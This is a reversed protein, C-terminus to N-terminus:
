THEASIIKPLQVNKSPAGCSTEYPCLDNIWKKVSTDSVTEKYLDSHYKEFHKRIAKAMNLPKSEIPSNKMEYEWSSKALQKALFQAENKRLTKGKITQKTPISENSQQLYDNLSYASIFIRAKGILQFAQLNLKELDQFLIPFPNELIQKHIESNPFKLKPIKKNKFWYWQKYFVTSDEITELDCDQLLIFTRKASTVCSIKLLSKEGLILKCIDIHYSPHPRLFISRSPQIIKLGIISFSRFDNESKSDSTLAICGDILKVYISLINKQILETFESLSLKSRKVAEDLEIYEQAVM